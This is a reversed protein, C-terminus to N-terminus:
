NIVTLEGTDTAPDYKCWYTMNQWAGFANQFRVSDGGYLVTGAQRDDWRFREFKSGLFGDTWEYTYRASAEVLPQCAFTAELHNEDGWCQLDNRCAAEQAAEIDQESLAVRDRVEQPIDMDNEPYYFTVEDLIHETTTDFRNALFAVLRDENVVPGYESDEMFSERNEDWATEFRMQDPTLVTDSAHADTWIEGTCYDGEGTIGCGDPAFVIRALPSGGEYPVLFATIYEPHHTDWAQRVAEMITAIRDEPTQATPSVVSVRRRLRISSSIDEDTVIGFDHAIWETELESNEEARLQEADEQEEQVQANDVGQQEGESESPTDLLAGLVALGLVTFFSWKFVKSM